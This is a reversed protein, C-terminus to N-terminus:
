TREEAARAIQEPSIGRSLRKCVFSHEVGLYRAFDALSEYTVGASKVRIGSHRGLSGGRYTNYGGQDTLTSLERIFRCEAEVADKARGRWLERVEFNASGEERILKAFATTSGTYAQSRHGSIRAKISNLTVGVYVYRKRSSCWWGYVYATRNPDRGRLPPADLGCAQDDTWGYRKRAILAGYSIGFFEAARKYNFTGKKTVLTASQTKGSACKGCGIGKLERMRLLSTLFENGCSKCTVDLNIKAVGYYDAKKFRPRLGKAKAEAVADSFSGQKNLEIAASVGVSHSCLSCYGKGAGKRLSHNLAACSTKNESGCNGCNFKLKSQATEYDSDKFKPTHGLASFRSRVESISLTPRGM